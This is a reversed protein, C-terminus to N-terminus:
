KNKRATKRTTKEEEESQKVVVEEKKIMRARLSGFFGSIIKVLPVAFIAAVVLKESMGYTRVAYLAFICLFSNMAESKRIRFSKAMLQKRIFIGTLEKVILWTVLKETNERCHVFGLFTFIKGAVPLDGIVRLFVRQSYLFMGLFLGILNLIACTPTIEFKQLVSNALMGPMYELVFMPLILNMFYPEYGREILSSTTLLSSIITLVSKFKSVTMECNSVCQM